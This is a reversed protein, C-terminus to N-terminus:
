RRFLYFFPVVPGLIGTLLDLTTSTGSKDVVIVDGDRLATSTEGFSFTKREIQNGETPRLLTIHSTEAKDTPGGAAAVAQTLNSKPKISVPGPTQVQGVVQVTIKDPAVTSSLFLQRESETIESKPVVIEDGDLVQPDASLDGNKIAQWLNFTLEQKTQTEQNIRRIVINRLDADPTVGGALLLTSSLTKFGSSSSQASNDVSSVLLRPGPQRVEGSLSIRGPRAGTLSLAVRPRRVYPILATSIRDNAEQLTLGEVDISGAMPLLLTGDSLVMQDNSLEPFGIVILHVKDGSHIRYLNKNLRLSLPETSASQCTLVALLVSAILMNTKKM